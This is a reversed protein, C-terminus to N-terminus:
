LKSDKVFAAVASKEYAQEAIFKLDLVKDGQLSVSQEYLAPLVRAIGNTRELSVCRLQAMEFTEALVDILSDVTWRNEDPAVAVLIAQPARAGPANANLAVGATVQTNIPADSEKGRKERLPMAENWEDVVLAVTDGSADYNEASDIVISCVSATTTPQAPDLKGGIWKTPIDNGPGALQLARLKPASGVAESLLLVESYRKVGERVSSRDVLYRRIEATTPVITSEVGAALSLTDKATASGIAPLTWFGDGFLTQGITVLLEQTPIEALLSEASEKKRMAMSFVMRAVNVLGDGKVAPVFIGFDTLLELTTLLDTVSVPNAQLQAGLTQIRVSLTGVANVLRMHVEAIAEPSVARTTPFNPVAIDAVTAPRANVLLTRLSVALQYIDGISREEINWNASSHDFLAVKPDLAPLSSRLRANFSEHDAALYVIDLACLGSEALSIPDGATNQGVQITAPNGLRAGCWAEMMPAVLSRPQNMNWGTNGNAILIIRHTFPVGSLRTAVVDPELPPVDGTGAADLAASARVMNGQVLHHVSEALLLDAVADAASAADEIIASVTTWEAPTLNPWPGVLYPNDKPTDNLRQQIRNASWNNVKGQYKEILQIGDTVNAAALTEIASLEVNQNRDTLKGQKLPAITRLSLILRDLHAEHIAREIRYGLLAGLQQGERIGDLLHMATRVRASTLDIAFANSGTSDANHTLYANRLIGATAAHALSPAAIYGGSDQRKEAPSLNHIWGYAGVTMGKPKASRLAQRRREVVGTIWADLRHSAIDLTEALLIRRENLSMGSDFAKVLETLATRLEALRGSAELWTITAYTGLVSRSAVTSSELALQGFSTQYAAIPQIQKLAPITTGATVKSISAATDFFISPATRDARDALVLVDEKMKASLSGALNVVDHLKGGASTDFVEKTARSWSLAILAQLVSTIKPSQGAMIAQINASDNAEDVFPLALPRTDKSLSGSPHILSANLILEELILEEILREADLSPKSAGGASVGLLAMENSLVSRVRLSTSVPSAGLLELLTKDIEGESVQPVNVVCSLWKQRLRKLLQVLGDEYADGATSVWRNSISSVPLVGYPQSGIRFAPLPGRGRVFDRHFRRTTERTSSSLSEGKATVVNAKDLFSGWSSGWLATNMSRALSQEFATANELDAIVHSSIGLANAFINGNSEAALTVEGVSPHRIEPRRQWESRDTETNNTPTGQRVFAIGQTCRQAALLDEFDVATREPDVSRRVGVVFLQDVSKGPQLLPLTIAMGLKEAIDYDAFWESGEVVKLGNVDALASGDDAFLGVPLEHKISAGTKRSSIGGQFAIATFNDPLLKAAAARKLRGSVEPFVPSASTSREPINTPTLALVIYTARYRGVAKILTQWAADISSESSESWISAWYIKGADLENSDLGRDLQDIHIEDPYIRIKLSTGDMSYRTELRIPLLVLPLSPDADGPDVVGNLRDIINRMGADHESIKSVTDVRANNLTEIEAAVRTASAQDSIAQAREFEQRKLSLDANLDTLNTVLKDRVDRQSQLDKQVENLLQLDLNPM